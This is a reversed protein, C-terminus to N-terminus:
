SCIWPQLSRPHHAFISCPVALTYQEPPIPTQCLKSLSPCVLRLSTSRSTIYIIKCHTLPELLRTGQLQRFLTLPITSYLNIGPPTSLQIIDPFLPPPLPKPHTSSKPSTLHHSQSRSPLKHISNAAAPRLTPM